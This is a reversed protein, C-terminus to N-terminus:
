LFFISNKKKENLRKNEFYRYFHGSSDLSTALSLNFCLYNELKPSRGGKRDKASISYISNSISTFDPIKLLKPWKETSKHGYSGWFDINKFLSKVALRCKELRNKQPIM